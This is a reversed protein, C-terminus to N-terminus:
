RVAEQLEDAPDAETSLLSRMDLLIDSMEAASVLERQHLTGLSRDIIELAQNIPDQVPQDADIPDITDSDLIETMVNELASDAPGTGESGKLLVMTM